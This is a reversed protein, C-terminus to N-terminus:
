PPHTPPNPAQPACGPRKPRSASVANCAAPDASPAKRRHTYVQLVHYLSRIHTEAACHFHHARRRRSPRCAGSSHSRCAGCIQWSHNFLRVAPPLSRQCTCRAPLGRSFCRCCRRWIVHVVIVCNKSAISGAGGGDWTDSYVLLAHKQGDLTPLGANRLAVCM